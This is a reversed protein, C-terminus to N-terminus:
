TTRLSAASLGVYPYCARSLDFQRDGLCFRALADRIQAVSNDYITAIREFAAQELNRDIPTVSERM